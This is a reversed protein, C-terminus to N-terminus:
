MYERNPGWHLKMTKIMICGGASFNNKPVGINSIMRYTAFLPVFILIDTLVAFLVKVECQSQSMCKVPVLSPM